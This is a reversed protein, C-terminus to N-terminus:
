RGRALAAWRVPQRAAPLDATRRRPLAARLQSATVTFRPSVDYQGGFPVAPGGNAVTDAAWVALVYTNGAAPATTSIQVYGQNGATVTVAGGVATWQGSAPSAVQYLQYRYQLGALGRLKAALTGGSVRPQQTFTLPTPAFRKNRWPQLTVAVAAPFSSTLTTSNNGQDDYAFGYALGVNSGPRTLSVTPQHLFAAYLNSWNVGTADFAPYFNSATDWFTTVDQGGAVSNAVGRNFASVITNQIDLLTQGSANTGTVQGANAQGGGDAFVGLCGFTMLGPSQVTAPGGPAVWPPAAPLASATVVALKTPTGSFGGITPMSTYGSGPNTLGVATITGSADTVYFGAAGNGGGGTFTLQGVTNAAYGAGGSSLLLSGIGSGVPLGTPFATAGGAFFPAYVQYTQGGSVPAWSADAQELKLVTFEGPVTFTYSGSNAAVDGALSVFTVQDTDVVPQGTLVATGTIGPGTVLVGAGLSIPAATLGGPGAVPQFTLMPLASASGGQTTAQPALTNEITFSSATAAVITQNALNFGAPSMGTISVTQGKQFGNAAEYTIQSGTATASTVSVTGGAALSGSSTYAAPRYGSETTGVFNYGDRQLRFGGATYNSFFTALAADFYGDLTPVGLFGPPPNTFADSPNLLRYPTLLGKFAAETAPSLPDGGNFTTEIFDAYARALLARGMKVGVGRTAGSSDAPAVNMTFPLGVQDVQTTNIFLTGDNPGVNRMTFELFDFNIRNNPDGPNSMAPFNPKGSSIPIVPPLGMGFVVRTSVMRADPSNKVQFSLRAGVPSAASFLQFTPVTAPPPGSAMSVFQLPRTFDNGGGAKQRPVLYGYTLNGNADSLQGAIAAYVAVGQGSNNKFSFSVPGNATASVSANMSITGTGTATCGTFALGNKSIGAYKVIMSQNGPLAVILSGPRGPAPKAFGYQGGIVPLRFPRGAAPLTVTTRVITSGPTPPCSEIVISGNPVQIDKFPQDAGVGSAGVPKLGVFTGATTSTPLRSKATDYSFIGNGGGGTGISSGGLICIFGTGTFGAAAAVTLSNTTAASLTAFTVTSGNSSMASAAQAVITGDQFVANGDGAVLALTTFSKTTTTDTTAGYSVLGYAAPQGPQTLLLHAPAPAFGSVSQVQVGGLASNSVVAALTQGITLGAPMTPPSASLALRPELRELMPRHHRGRPPVSPGRVSKPFLHM